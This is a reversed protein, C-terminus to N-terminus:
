KRIWRNNNFYWANGDYILLCKDSIDTGDADFMRFQDFDAILTDFKFVYCIENSRPENTNVIANPDYTEVDILQWDGTAHYEDSDMRTNVTQVLHIGDVKTIDDVSNAIIYTILGEKTYRYLPIDEDITETYAREAELPECHENKFTDEIYQLLEDRSMEELTSQLNEVWGNYHDSASVYVNGRTVYSEDHIKESTTISASDAVVKPANPVTENVYTGSSKWEYSSITTKFPNFICMDMQSKDRGTYSFACSINSYRELNLQHNKPLVVENVESNPYTEIKYTRYHDEYSNKYIFFMSNQENQYILELYASLDEPTDIPIDLPIIDTTISPSYENIPIKIDDNVKKHLYTDPIFINKNMLDNIFADNMEISEDVYPNDPHNVGTLKYEKTFGSNAANYIWLNDISDFMLVFMDEPYGKLQRLYSNYDPINVDLTLGTGSGVKTTTTFTTLQSLFGYHINFAGDISISIVEGNNADTVVGNITQGGIQISFEDDIDYGTGANNVTITNDVSPITIYCNLNDYVCHPNGSTLYDRWFEYYQYYKPFIVGNNSRVWKPVYEDWVKLQEDEEYPSETRNYEVDVVYTPAYDPIDQLQTFSTPIDCIRALTRGPLHGDSNSTYIAPDNSVYYIRGYNMDPNFEVVDTSFFHNGHYIFRYRVNEGTLHIDAFEDDDVYAIDSLYNTTSSYEGDGEYADPDVYHIDSEMDYSYKNQTIPYGSDVILGATPKDTPSQNEHNIDDRIAYIISRSFCVNRNNYFNHFYSPLGDFDCMNHTIGNKQIIGNDSHMCTSNIHIGSVANGKLYEYNYLASTQYEARLLATIVWKDDVDKRYNYRYNDFTAYGHVVENEDTYYQIGQCNSALEKYAIGNWTYYKRYERDYYVHSNDPIIAKSHSRTTYMVGDEMFGVINNCPFHHVYDSPINYEYEATRTGNYSDSRYYVVKDIVVYDNSKDYLGDVNAFSYGRAPILEIFWDGDVREPDDPDRIPEPLNGTDTYIGYTGPEMGPFVFSNDHGNAGYRLLPFGDYARADIGVYPVTNLADNQIYFMVQNKWESNTMNNMSKIGIIYNNTPVDPNPIDTYMQKDCYWYRAYITNNGDESFKLPIDVGDKIIVVDKDTQYFNERSIISDSKSLSHIMGLDITDQPYPTLLRPIPRSDCPLKIQWTHNDTFVDEKLTCIILNQQEYTSVDGAYTIDFYQLFESSVKIKDISPKNLLLKRSELLLEGGFNEVTGNYVSGNIDVYGENKKVHTDFFAKNAHLVRRLTDPTTIPYKRKLVNGEKM